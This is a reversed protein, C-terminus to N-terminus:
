ETSGADADAEGEGRQRNPSVILVADADISRDSRDLLIRVFELRDFNAALRARIEDGEREIEGVPLGKPFIGGDSSTFIRRGSEIDDIENVFEVLPANENDGVLIARVIKEERDEDDDEDKEPTEAGEIYVPVRSALDTLLLIRAASRGTSIVRGVVGGGDLAVAGPEVSGDRGVNITV